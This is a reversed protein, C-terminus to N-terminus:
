GTHSVPSDDLNAERQPTVQRIVYAPKRMSRFHLRGLYEGLIGLALLQTGSFIAITSAIFTFGPTHDDTTVYRILVYCIMGFGVVSLSLGLFTVIRLPVVSYGTLMNMTHRVLKRFTYNSKGYRRSEMRVTVSTVQTTTWALLVDISVFPDESTTFGERLSTRFCRFASVIKATEVGVSAAMATKTLRSSTNRWRGHEEEEPNGYALDAGNEIAEVLLPIDEPRHQLDDDLTVILEGRAHRIGALLANHQGFNRSLNVGRVAAHQRALKEILTWTDDPSGDNVLVIEYQDPADQFVANIRQVLEDLSLTSKYCPVVISLQRPLGVDDPPENAM